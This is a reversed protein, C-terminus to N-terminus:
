KPLWRESQTAILLDVRYPMDEGGVNKTQRSSYQSLLLIVSLPGGAPKSSGSLSQVNAPVYRLVVSEAYLRVRNCEQRCFTLALELMVFVIEDDSPFSDLLLVTAVDKMVEM